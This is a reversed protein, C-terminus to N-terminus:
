EDENSTKQAPQSPPQVQSIALLRHYLDLTVSIPAALNMTRLAAVLIRAEDGSISLNNEAM